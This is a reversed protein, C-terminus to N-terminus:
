DKWGAQEPAGTEMKGPHFQMLAVKSVQCKQPSRPIGIKIRMSAHCM